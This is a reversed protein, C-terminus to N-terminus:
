AEPPHLNFQLIRQYVTNRTTKLRKATRAINWGTIALSQRLNEVTLDARRTRRFAFAGNRRGTAEQARVEPPLHTENILGNRVKVFAYEMANELERVNGPWHYDLMASLATEDVGEILRGTRERIKDVFHQALLPIDDRRERLPPLQIPMVRLRYLLDLRFKGAAVLDGLPRNTAAIIRIDVPVTKEDGVREIARDQLVRLLKVQIAPSIEGVEDLLLTGGNAVEFRGRKDRLAGTFAGRVHGFLESELLSEALASCNVAVFPGNARPSIHHCARAVLEKGTGSEGEILVTADSDAVEEVLGFVEQMAKSKGVINHLRYREGLDRRLAAIESVDRFVVVGGRARGRRDRLVDTTLMVVKRTGSPMTLNVEYDRIPRRERISKRLESEQACLEDGLLCPCGVDVAESKEIELIECAARNLDIVKGGDDLTLIGESLSDLIAQLDHKTIKTVNSPSSAM